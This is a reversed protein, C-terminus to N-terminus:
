RMGLCRMMYESAAQRSNNIIDEAEGFDNEKCLTEINQGGKLWNFAQVVRSYVNSMYKEETIWYNSLVRYEVGYPKPRFAGAKGYMQRRRCDPDERISPVGVCYDLQKAMTACEEIWHPDTVDRDKTWGLHLHGAATRMNPHPDPMPNQTVTYANYDPDCGLIKSEAPQQAMYDNSFEATPTVVMECDKPIMDQLRSLVTNINNKFQRYNKAPVTNIELAMGDVQVAGKKVPYPNEKSGPIIGHANIFVGDRKLFLETDQGVLLQM